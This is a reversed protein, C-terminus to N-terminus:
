FAAIRYQFLYRTDQQEHYTTGIDESYYTLSFEGSKQGVGIGASPYGSGYGGRLFLFNRISYEVGFAARGLPTVKSQNTMDRYELVLNFFSTATAKPRVSVSVDFTTPETLPVGSSQTAIKYITTASYKAGGLNRGVFNLSPLYSYPLNIAIAANHSLASGQLLGVNYGLPASDASTFVDGSAQNVWQLSYGVRVIGSALRASTGAAPILQYRSKYHITTGDSSAGFETQALMGVTLYRSSFAPLLAAGSSVYTGPSKALEPAYQSLSYLKYSDASFTQLLSGNGFLSLNMPDFHAGRIKALGAPNSFLGSAGDEGLPLYADGVAAARGSTYRSGPVIDQRGFANLTISVGLILSIVMGTMERNFLRRM